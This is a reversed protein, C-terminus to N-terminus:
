PGLLGRILFVLAGGGLLAFPHIRTFLLAALSVATVSLSLAGGGNAVLVSYGGALILGAAVPALGRSLYDRWRAFTRHRWLVTLAYFLISSPMFIALSAVLAGALGAVQWGVLTVILANPGPAARAIAYDDSFEAQTLWHHVDVTQHQIDAIISPGGGISLLSLPGFLLLLQLLASNKVPENGKV